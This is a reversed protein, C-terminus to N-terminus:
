REDHDTGDGGQVEWLGAQEVWALGVILADHTHPRPVNKHDPFKADLRAEPWKGKQSPQVRYVEVRPIVLQCVAEICGIYEPEHLRRGIHHGASTAFIRYDEVVISNIHYKKLWSLLLGARERLTAKGEWALLAVPAEGTDFTELVVYGSTQGPDIALIRM